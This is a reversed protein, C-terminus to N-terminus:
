FILNDIGETKLIRKAKEHGLKAAAIFDNGAKVYDHIKYYVVARNYHAMAYTPYLYIIATYLDIADKYSQISYLVRGSKMLGMLKDKNQRMIRLIKRNIAMATSYADRVSNIYVFILLSILLANVFFYAIQGIEGTLVMGNTQALGEAIARAFFLIVWTLLTLTIYIVGRDIERNYIQGFGPFLISLSAPLIPKNILHKNDINIDRKIKFFGKLTIILIYLFLLSLPIIIMAVIMFFSSDDVSGDNRTKYYEYLNEITTVERVSM